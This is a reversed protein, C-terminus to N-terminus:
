QVKVVPPLKYTGNLLAEGPQYSRVTLNYMGSPPTPQWNSEKDTGPSDRQLYIDLSGDSNFKLPMGSLIGYRNLSNKVYFNGRYPSISWVNMKSPPLGGKEFHMVYKNSGDLAMGNSDVFASPYVCDEKSLAGLGVYALFARTQYDTGYAGVDLVTIWGNVTKMSFPGTEFQMNVFAPAKNIGDLIAPDAKTADFPKGPEVGLRKLGEVMKADAPRPPNDALVQALRNFFTAGSMLKVQDFPTDTLDVNPDVPVNAPPVYNTGWASLPTIKLEDQKIHIAPFDAPSAASMQVLVWAYRTDSKFVQDVDKPPTGSWKPGAILYSGAKGGNTRSGVSMFNDTWMDMAQVVIFRDGMDPSTVIMPEKDLDLFGTSWLSNVSIRVVNKFDPSVYTRLRQFQNIPASYEGATPAATMVKRTADMLVIPYGYVYEESGVLFAATEKVTKGGRIFWGALLALVVLALIILYLSAKPKTKADSGTEKAMEIEKAAIAQV